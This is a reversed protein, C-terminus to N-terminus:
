NIQALALTQLFFSGFVSEAYNSLVFFIMKCPRYKCFFFSSNCASYAKQLFFLTVGYGFGQKRLYEVGKNNITM